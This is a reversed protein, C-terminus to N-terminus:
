WPEISGKVKSSPPVGRQLRIKKIPSNRHGQSQWYRGSGRQMATAVSFGETACGRRGNAPTSVKTIRPPAPLQPGHVIRCEQGDYAFRLVKHCPLSPGARTDINRYGDNIAVDGSQGLMAATGRDEEQVGAAFGFKPFFTLHRCRILLQNTAGFCHDRGVDNPVIIAVTVFGSPLPRNMDQDMDPRLDGRAAPLVGNVLQPRCNVVFNINNLRRNMNLTWWLMLKNIALILSHVQFTHHRKDLM